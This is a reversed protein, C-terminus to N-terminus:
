MKSHRRHPLLMKAVNFSFCAHCWYWGQVQAKNLALFNRLLVGREGDCARDADKLLKPLV